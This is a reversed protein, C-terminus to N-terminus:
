FFDVALRPDRRGEVPEDGATHPRVPDDSQPQVEPAPAPSGPPATPVPAQVPQGEEPM